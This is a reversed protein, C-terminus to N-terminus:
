VDFIVEAVWGSAAKELKLQHYTAAKIEANVRFDQAPSGFVEAELHNEDLAGIKFETFILGKASSLSLLGNLWEVFLESVDQADQKVTLRQPPEAPPNKKEAIIQFMAQAAKEFLEELEGARVRIGVDATHEILEFDKM